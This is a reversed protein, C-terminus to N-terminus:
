HTWSLSAHKIPILGMLAFTLLETVQTADTSSVFRIFGVSLAMLQITLSDDPRLALSGLPPRSVIYNRLGLERTRLSPLMNRRLSVSAVDCEPPTTLSLV